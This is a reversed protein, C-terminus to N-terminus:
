EVGAARLLGHYDAATLNQYPGVANSPVAGAAGNGHKVGGAQRATNWMGLYMALKGTKWASGPDYAALEIDDESASGTALNAELSSGPQVAGAPAVTVVPVSVPVTVVPVVGTAVAAPSAAQVVAGNNSYNLYILIVGVGIGVMEITSLKEM